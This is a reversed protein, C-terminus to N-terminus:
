AMRRSVREPGFGSGGEGISLSVGDGTGRAPDHCTACLRHESQRVLIPDFFLSRGLEYLEPDPANREMSFGQGGAPKPLDAAHAGICTTLLLAITMPSKM